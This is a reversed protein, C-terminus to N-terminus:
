VPTSYMWIDVVYNYMINDLAATSNKGGSSAKTIASRAMGFAKSSPARFQAPDDSDVPEITIYQKNAALLKDPQKIKAAMEFMNNNGQLYDVVAGALDIVTNSPSSFSGSKSAYYIRAEIHPQYNAGGVSFASEASQLVDILTQRNENAFVGQMISAIPDSVLANVDGVIVGLHEESNVSDQKIHVFNTIDKNKYLTKGIVDLYTPIYEGPMHGYAVNLRTSFTRGYAITHNVSEVYYLMDHSELYVVDGPQMFENGFITISGSFIHKRAKNLLAVAFPAGQTSPDSLFPASVAQPLTIGYMRWMDYDVAAATTLSNGGHIFGNLDSPLEQDKVLLDGFKGQVEVATYPPLNESLTMSKIHQDKIVYRQGSGPGYDDFSEDEIMRELAQPIKPSNLLNPNILKNAIDDKNQILSLGEKANKIAGAAVKLIKQREAIRDTINQLIRLLDVESVGKGLLKKSNPFLQALDFNQNTKQFLRATIQDQRSITTNNDLIANLTSGKIPFNNSKLFDARTSVSLINNITAQTSVSNIANLANSFNAAATDPDNQLSLDPLVVRSTAGTNEDSIFQFPTSPRNARVDPLQTSLFSAIAADTSLGLALGYMRIEDELVELRELINEIQNVYLDELFQPYLQIDFEQKLRIMRYFVSSPMRNYLPPRVRIHGQTDAFLELDLLSAIRKLQESLIIYDSRFVSITNAGIFEKEFAQIDYDKDYTDDVIFFNVDENARAKWSLRRTLYNVRRRLDRQANDFDTLDNKDLNGTFPDYDLTTDNGIISIPQNIKNLEDYIQKQKAAIQENLQDVQPQLNNADVSLGRAQGANSLYSIRDNLDARKALLDNLEADFASANLQNNLVNKYTNQDMTLEKFPIFDGYLLNRFKLDTQLNRFYSHSPDAGTQPDRGYNDVQRAAKYFTTFNYPEGTILLSLANMVDQGAFPDATIAPVSVNTNQVEQYDNGSLTLSGIGEKWKYVMGDPNYFVKRVSNDQIVETDQVFNNITPKKGVNAGSKYKVFSSNFLDKNEQLLDPTADKQFGTASDFKIDFPTLPDFLSGNFVNASPRFNVVGHQFYYTNDVGSANVAYTGSGSDFTSRANDLVGTFICTGSKDRTFQNRMISWLWNPFDRGVFISKDVTDIDEAVNFFDQLQLLAKNATQLFGVANFSNQLGGLIKNDLKAKSSVYINIVDLPQLMLKGGYHLRLKKRLYNTEANHGRTATRSNQNIQMQNFTSKVIRSFIQVEDNTLGDQGGFGGDKLYSPDISVSFVSGTFQIELGTNDIIARIRKGLFTNPEVIFNIPNAGRAVRIQNLQTKDDQISQNLSNLSLQIFSSGMVASTADAIAKEIDNNTIRMLNYPDTISVNVTGGGFNVSATTEISFGTTLEIVGTGEGLDTRFSSLTNTTWTTFIQDHSLNVITRVRDVINKFSGLASSGFASFVADLTDTAAFLVPLLHYDVQGIETVVSQIKTLQEYAAIQKCKNQFLFRTARLFLRENSELLDNRFNDALSSFARKKILITIEPENTWLEFNKPRPNYLDTNYFGEEYYSRDASQDFSNAFNGLKGYSVTHGNVITDLSRLKNDGLDFQQSLVDGLGSFFDGVSM